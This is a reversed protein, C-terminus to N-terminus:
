KDLIHETHEKRLKHEEESEVMGLDKLKNVFDMKSLKHETYNQMLFKLADLLSDIYDNGQEKYVRACFLKWKLETEDSLKAYEKFEKRVKDIEEIRKYDKMIVGTREV